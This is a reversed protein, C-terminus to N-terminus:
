ARRRRRALGVGVLGLGLLALTGPEPVSRRTVGYLEVHSLGGGRHFVNVFSWAGASVSSDLLYVFWNDPRNGAGFKFGIAISSWTDWLNADLAFTGISGITESILPVQTYTADGLGTYNLSPNAQLFADTGPNGNLNGVGADVCSQVLTSDVYMHNRSVDECLVPVASAPLAYLTAALAVLGWANKRLNM